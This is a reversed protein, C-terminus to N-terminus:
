HAVMVRRVFSRGAARLRVFYLGDAVPGSADRGDWACRHRGPAVVADVLTAVTRGQLDHVTLRVRTEAPVAYDVSARGHSPNPSVSGLALETVGPAVPADTTHDDNLILAVGASDAITAGTANSLRLEFTEAGEQVADGHVDITVPVDVVGPDFVVTGSAATYDDGAVTASGDVTRYDVTVPASSGNTLRVQFPLPTIGSNGELRAPDDVTVAPIPDDNLITASATSPVGITANFVAVFGASFTEDPEYQTDGYVDVTFTASTSGAPITVSGFGGLYDSDGEEATGDQTQYNVYVALSYPFSLRVTFTSHTTGSNGEAVSDASITVTPQPGAVNAIWTAWRSSNNGHGDDTGTRVGAFEGIMWLSRDDVPDVQAKVYDGWRNRGGGFDKNYYDDGAKYILPDRLAGAPDAGLHVAYGTAPHQNSAFQSFGLLVDGVSNVALHAYAYWKGGNTATATPDELRGGDVVNLSATSLRTWQIGTHTLSGSPIGVTQAYYISGDRVVPTSRIYSDQAELKCPTSGCSSVGGLPASQPLINGGPQSWTLGRSKNTGVTYSPAAATGTIRDVRYTGSTVHTPVYLISDTASYTAAPCSCFGTSGFLTTSVAGARLQPYNVVLCKSTVYAGGSLSFMNVNIAIWNCNFGITPFDAWSTNGADADIRALVYSGAPDDSTSVGVLISSSTTQGDSLACVIWRHNYPDYLTKPDFVSGAGTIRWFADTAVTSVISADSKGLVRYNNNLGELVDRPGVAGDCDPPIVGSGAGIAPIDDLGKFTFAPAPSPGSFPVVPPLAVRPAPAPANGPEHEEGSENLPVKWPRVVGPSSPRAALERFNVTAVRVAAVRTGTLVTEAGPAAAPALRADALVALITFWAAFGPVPTNRPRVPAPDFPGHHM